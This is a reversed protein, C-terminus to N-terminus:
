RKPIERVKKMKLWVAKQRWRLDGKLEGANQSAMRRQSGGAPFWELIPFFFSLLLRKSLRKQSLEEKRFSLYKEKKEQEERKRSFFPNETVNTNRHLTAAM